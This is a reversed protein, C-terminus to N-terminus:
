KDPKLVECHFNHKPAVSIASAPASIVSTGTALMSGTGREYSLSRATQRQDIRSAFADVSRASVKEGFLEALIRSIETIDSKRARELASLLTSMDDIFAKRQAQTTPWRDNLRDLEYTPNREDPGAGLVHALAMDARLKTALTELQATLGRDDFGCTQSIKTLYISPPRKLDRGQYILYIFRKLLKLAVVQQADVRPPIVPPLPEQEAKALIEDVIRNVGFKRRREQVKEAFAQEQYVVSTRYWGAFGYPNSPVRYSTGSDPSHFIEGIRPARPEEASDLITVDMHMFAFQVQVCRTCRVIRKAGPFGQLSLHLQDLAYNNSWAKPVRFEVIADVDFRDDDTGSIITAGIAISGQAYILSTSSLLYERLSSSPRELHTKLQKFRNDAISRDHDSLELVTAVDLLLDDLTYATQQFGM